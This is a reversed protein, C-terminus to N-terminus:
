CWKGVEIKREYKVKVVPFWVGNEGEFVAVPRSVPLQCM